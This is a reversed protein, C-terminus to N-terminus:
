LQKRSRGCFTMIIKLFDAALHIHEHKRYKTRTLVSLENQLLTVKLSVLKSRGLCLERLVSVACRTAYRERAGLAGLILFLIYVTFEFEEWLFNESAFFCFFFFSFVAVSAYAGLRLESNM